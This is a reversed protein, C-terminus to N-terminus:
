FFMKRWKAVTNRSLKFHNALQSNNLKNKKQYDLIETIAQRDYSRHQQNFTENEKDATGFIKENLRIIDLLTLEKKGLLVKCEEKKDPYKKDLIDQYIRKYDPKINRDITGM